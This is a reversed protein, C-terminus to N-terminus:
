VYMSSNKGALYVGYKLRGQKIPKVRVFQVGQKRIDNAASNAQAKTKFGDYIKLKVM